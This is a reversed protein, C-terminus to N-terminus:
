RSPSLAISLENSSQGPLPLTKTRYGAGQVVLLAGEGHGIGALTFRGDATTLVKHTPVVLDERIHAFRARVEQDVDFSVEAGPVPIGDQDRVIGACTTTPAAVVVSTGKQDMTPGIRTTLVTTWGESRAELEREDM